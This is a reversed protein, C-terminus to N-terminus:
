LKGEARLVDVFQRPAPGDIMLPLNPDGKARARKYGDRESVRRLYSLINSYKSLDFPQFTRMTTLSFVTMCDAASFEDGALWKNSGLREDLFTLFKDLQTNLRVMYHNEPNAGTSRLALLQSIKPQLGGNSWHFWYLYDAYNQHSPPLALRGNGHKHIIYEVCAASEALTLNGDQIVPAQGLKNLDKISQPSFLPDRQHLKLTYDIGLEECLWVLRDSQSVQLHHVILTM